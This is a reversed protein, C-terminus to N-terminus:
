NVITTSLEIETLLRYNGLIHVGILHQLLYLLAFTKIITQYVFIAKSLLVWHTSEYKSSQILSCFKTLRYSIDNNQDRTNVTYTFITRDPRM